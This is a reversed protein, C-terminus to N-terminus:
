HCRSVCRGHSAACNGICTGDGMCYSMCIGQENTCAGICPGPNRPVRPEIITRHSTKANANEKALQQELLERNAREEALQQELLERNEARRRRYEQRREEEKKLLEEQDSIGKYYDAEEQNYKIEGFTEIETDQPAGANSFHKVGDKDVWMVMEAYSISILVFIAIFVILLRKM